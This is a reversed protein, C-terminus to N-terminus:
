QGDIMSCAADTATAASDAYGHAGICAALDADLAAGGVMIRVEPHLKRVWTITDQMAPICTSMMASLAVLCPRHEEIAELARDRTLEGTDIVRFGSTELVAAVINKGLDHVEGEVVGILVCRDKKRIKPDPKNVLKLGERFADMALLFEPVCLDANRLGCRARELGRNLADMVSHISADKVKEVPGHDRIDSINGQYVDDELEQLMGSIDSKTDM